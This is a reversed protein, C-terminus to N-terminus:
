KGWWNNEIPPQDSDSLLRKLPYNESLFARLAAMEGPELSALAMAEAATMTMDQYIDRDPRNALSFAVQALNSSMVDTDM